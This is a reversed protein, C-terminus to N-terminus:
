TQLRLDKRIGADVLGAPAFRRLLRMRGALGGAAYRLKPRAAIAAQLVTEAVVEPGDAGEVVERVRKALATRVERYEDLPVDPEMFNADFPTKIYAPEIVSVRIGMTRLEHDLSESYGAVAHKTATYLAMYPMPLFGLVSGINIIRGSGERRMHPVVARTMRVIGFFNTDFIARAQELSSEEAGAPAVGFGANNVLLDIHGELRLMERVATDVSADSTVDLPLLDFSRKGAPAGRRSTGYVKYGAKALREATAEGIGSSAGTVLATKTKSKM